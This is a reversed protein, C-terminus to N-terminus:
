NKFAEKLANAMEGLFQMAFGKLKEEFAIKQEPSMEAADTEMMYLKTGDPSHPDFVMNKDSMKLTFHKPDKGNTPAAYINVFDPGEEEIRYFARIDGKSPNSMFIGRDSITMIVMKFAALIMNRIGEPMQQLQPMNGLTKEEDVQWIKGFVTKLFPSNANKEFEAAFESEMKLAAADNKAQLLGECYQEIAKAAEFHHKEEAVTWFEYAAELDGKDKAAMGMSFYADAAYFDDAALDKLAAIANDYQKVSLLIEAKMKLYESKSFGDAEIRLAADIDKLAADSDGSKSYVAARISYAQADDPYSELVTNLDALANSYDKKLLYIKARAKIHYHPDWGMEREREIVNGFAELAEDLRGLSELYSAMNAVNSTSQPFLEDLKKYVELAKEINEKSKYIEIQLYLAPELQEGERVAETDALAKDSDQLAMYTRARLLYAYANGKEIDLLRNLLPLAEENKWLMQYIEALNTLIETNDPEKELLTVYLDKAIEYESAQKYAYALLIRNKFEYPDLECLREIHKIAEQYNWNLLYYHALYFSTLPLDPYKEAAEMVLPEMEWNNKENLLEQMRAFMQQQEM